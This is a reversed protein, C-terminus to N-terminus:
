LELVFETKRKFEFCWRSRKSFLILFQWHSSKAICTLMLVDYYELARVGTGQYRGTNNDSVSTVESADIAIKSGVVEINKWTWGWDWIM